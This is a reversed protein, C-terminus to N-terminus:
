LLKKSKTTPRRKKEYFIEEALDLYKQNIIKEDFENLVKRRSAKGMEELKDHDLSYIKVMAEALALHDKVPVLYGNEQDDISEKCGATDTTIIPKGMAMAELRDRICM